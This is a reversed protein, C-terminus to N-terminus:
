ILKWNESRSRQDRKWLPVPLGRELMRVSSTVSNTSETPNNVSQNTHSFWVSHHPLVSRLLWSFALWVDLSFSWEDIRKENRRGEQEGLSCTRKIRGRNGNRGAGSRRTAEWRGGWRKKKNRKTWKNPGCFLCKTKSPSSTLLCLAVTVVTRWRCFDVMVMRYFTNRSLDLCPCFRSGPLVLGGFCTWWGSSSQHEFWSLTGSGVTLFLCVHFILFVSSCSSSGCFM